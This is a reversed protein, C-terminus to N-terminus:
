CVNASLFSDKQFLANKQFKTKPSFPESECFSTKTIMWHEIYLKARVQNITPFIFNQIYYHWKHYNALNYVTMSILSSLRLIKRKQPQYIESKNCPGHKNGM